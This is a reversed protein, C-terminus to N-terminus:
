SSSSRPLTRETSGVEAQSIQPVVGRSNPQIQATVLTKNETKRELIVPKLNVEFESLHSALARVRLM